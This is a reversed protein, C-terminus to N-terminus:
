LAQAKTAAKNPASYFSFDENTDLNVSQALRATDIDESLKKIESSRDYPTIAQKRGEMTSLDVSKDYDPFYDKFYIPTDGDYIPTDLTGGSGVLTAFGEFIEQDKRLVELQKEGAGIDM